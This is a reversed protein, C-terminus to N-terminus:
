SSPSPPPRTLGSRTRVQHLEEQSVLFERSVAAVAADRARCRGPVPQPCRSPQESQHRRHAILVLGHHQYEDRLECLKGDGHGLQSLDLPVRRLGRSGASRGFAEM